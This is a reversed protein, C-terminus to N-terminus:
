KQFLKVKMNANKLAMEEEAAIQKKTKKQHHKHTSPSECESDSDDGIVKHKVKAVKPIMHKIEQNVEARRGVMMKEIQKLQHSKHVKIRKIEEPSTNPGIEDTNYVICYSATDYDKFNPSNQTLVIKGVM